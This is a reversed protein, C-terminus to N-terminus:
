SRYVQLWLLGLSWGLMVALGCSAVLMPYGKRGDKNHLAELSDEIFTAVTWFACLTFLAAMAVQVLNFCKILADM